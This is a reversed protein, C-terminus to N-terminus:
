RTSIKSFDAFWNFLSLVRQVLALRQLRLEETPAILVPVGDRGTGFFRALPDRFSYLAVLLAQYNGTERAEREASLAALRSKEVAIEQPEVLDGSFDREFEMLGKEDAKERWGAASEDAKRLINFVRKFVNDLFDQFGETQASFDRLAVARAALAAPDADPFGTLVANAYDAPIDHDATLIGHFRERFFDATKGGPRDPPLVDWGRDVLIKLIAIAQRRLALPDKSGTPVAGVEFCKLISDMRDAVALVAGAETSPLDDGAHRPLYHERIATAVEESEGQERAYYEGMVGQLDPFEGVMQSMLDAKCLQAARVASTKVEDSLGAVGCISEAIAAIRAAKEAMDGAGKLFLREKLRPVLGELGTKRDQDWFFRADHLRAAIVRQNGQVVVNMDTARNNAVVGFTSVLNGEADEMAFYRQHSRMATVLVERPLELFAEEFRAILLFPKEVLNAVENLLGDDPIFRHGVEIEAAAMARRISDRREDPCTIVDRKDLESGYDLPAKLEFSDPALFRHGRTKCDSEVDVYRFPVVDSGFLCCIWHVPRVFPGTNAKWRMAKPFHLRDLVAPLAEALVDVTAQGAVHRQVAVVEGKPSDIRQLAAVDVGQGKAFGLAAKTPEGEPGFAIKVGPGTVTEDRDEQRDPLGQLIVALRRPTCLSSSGTYPLGADKVAEEVLRKLERAGNEVMRAPIEETGIELLLDRTEM